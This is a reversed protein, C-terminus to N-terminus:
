ASSPGADATKFVVLQPHNVSAMYEVPRGQQDAVVLRLLLCPSNQPLDLLRSEM